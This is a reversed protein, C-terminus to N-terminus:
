SKFKQKVTAYKDQCKYWNKRLHLKTQKKSKCKNPTTMTNEICKNKFKDMLKKQFQKKNKSIYKKKQLTTKQLTIKNKLKYIHKKPHLHPKCREAMTFKNRLGRTQIHMRCFSRQNHLRASLVPFGDIFSHFM